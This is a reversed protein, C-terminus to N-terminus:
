DAVAERIEAWPDEPLEVNIFDVGLPVLALCYDTRALGVVSSLFDYSPGRACRRAWWPASNFMEINGECRDDAERVAALITSVLADAPASSFVVETLSADESLCGVRPVMAFGFGINAAAEVVRELGVRADVVRNATEGRFTEDDDVLLDRILTCAGQSTRIKRPRPSSGFPSLYSWTAFELTVSRHGIGRRRWGHKWALWPETDFWHGEAFVTSQADLWDVKWGRLKAITGARTLNEEFEHAGPIELGPEFWWTLSWLEDFNEEGRDIISQVSRENVGSVYRGRANGEHCFGLPTVTM